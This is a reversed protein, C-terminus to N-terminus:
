DKQAKLAIEQQLSKRTVPLRNNAILYGTVSSFVKPESLSLSENTELYISANQLRSADAPPIHLPSNGTAMVYGSKSNVVIISYGAHKLSEARKSTLNGVAASYPSQPKSYSHCAASALVLGVPLVLHLKM